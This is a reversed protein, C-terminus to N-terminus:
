ASAASSEASVRDGRMRGLMRFVNLVPKDIGNTALDSLRRLLASGRFPVGV